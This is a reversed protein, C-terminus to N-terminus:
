VVVTEGPARREAVYRLAPVPNPDNEQYRDDLAFVGSALNGAVLAGLVVTLAAGLRFGSGGAPSPERLPVLLLALAAVALVAGLPQVYLLYRDRPEDSVFAFLLIPTWYLALLAVLGSGKVRAGDRPGAGRLVRGVVVGSLIALAAPVLAGFWGADFLSMWGALRPDLLRRFSVIDDGLFSGVPLGAGQGARATTNGPGVLAGLLMFVPPALLCLALAGLLARRERLLTRGCVAWAALLMGPWLLVASLQTFVALWFAVVVGVLARDPGRGSRGAPRSLAAVFCCALVLVVVQLLAYMRLRGSWLVSIPDLAVLSAALIAAWGPLGVMRALRATLLVAVTGAAVSVLRPGFLDGDKALGLLSLPSALYSLTAGHLYLVGSPLLPVGREAVMQAALLSNGEDVHPGFRLAAFLRLLGGGLAVLALVLM